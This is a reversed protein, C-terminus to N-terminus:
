SSDRYHLAFPSAREYYNNAIRLRRAAEDVLSAHQEAQQPAGEAHRNGM